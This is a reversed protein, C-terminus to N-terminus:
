GGILHPVSSPINLLTKSLRTATIQEDRQCNSYMPLDTMLNWAPRTMVNNANTLELFKDRESELDFRITNLWYNPRTDPTNTILRISSDAFFDKYLNTVRLKQHLIEDIKILQAVGLAANLNPMRYNYGLENHYYKYKHPMKSTTTIHKARQALEIDDTLVIGGGGTTLIKNGNFSIASVKGFTGLKKGRYESGLAEAADEVLPLRYEECISSIEALEVPFGFTHMPLCAAIRAGTSKNYTGTETSRANCALWTKLSAASLGMTNEDVDVFIPNAGIYRIANATAVFTLAQTIVEDGSQVGAMILATHLAATGNVTAVAYNSGTYEAIQDEFRDVFEGVSSVFNSDICQQLLRQELNDFVPRHLAINPECYIGRVFEVFDIATKM